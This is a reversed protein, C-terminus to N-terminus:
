TTHTAESEIEDTGEAPLEQITSTTNAVSSGADVSSINSGHNHVSNADTLSILTEKGSASTVEPEYSQQSGNLAHCHPCYYTIYSFDEKRALGNHMHCNGCILAYCQTPDEGVLLAAIRALWGGDNTISGKYHEVVSQNPVVTEQADAGYDTLSDDAFQSLSSSGTNNSKANVPKRHRLNTSHVLEVDNSRGSPSDFNSEDGVYVKLGSDAGLKSALVTAAAAKAAPDLDYRQILQQTTYYNTREKLEDIKAQREARLRELTKQDKRDLMRTLSVFTSYVAAALAPLVFMPLVRVARMQWNLDLSRTALIAYSVAVIELVVSVFIVNRATQRSTRARRKLRAQVSAEEKSLYQLRKEFDEPGRFIGKWMRSVFGYGTRKKERKAAPDPSTESTSDVKPKGPDDLGATPTADDAM